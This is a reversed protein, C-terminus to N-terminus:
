NKLSKTSTSIVQLNSVRIPTGKLFPNLGLHPLILHHPPRHATCPTGKPPITPQLTTSLTEEHFTPLLLVEVLHVVVVGEPRLLQLLDEEEALQIM